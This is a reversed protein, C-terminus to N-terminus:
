WMSFFNQGLGGEWATSGSAFPHRPWVSVVVSYLLARSFWRDPTGATHFVVLQPPTLTVCPLVSTIFARACASRVSRKGYPARSALDSGTSPGGALRPKRCRCLTYPRLSRLSSHMAGLEVNELKKRGCAHILMHMYVHMCIHMYACICTHICTYICAHMYAQTCTHTYNIHAHM